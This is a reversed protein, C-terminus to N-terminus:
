DTPELFLISTVDGVRGATRAYREIESLDFCQRLARYDGVFEWDNAQRKM